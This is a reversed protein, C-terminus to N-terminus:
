LAPRDLLHRGGGLAPRHLLYRKRASRLEGSCSGRDDQRSGAPPQCAGCPARRSCGRSTTYTLAMRRDLPTYGVVNTVPVADGGSAPIKWIRDEGTRNSTFYIWKGDWSLQVCKPGTLLSM